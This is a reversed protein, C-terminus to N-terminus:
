AESTCGKFQDDPADPEPKVITDEAEEKKVGWSGAEGGEDDVSHAQRIISWFFVLKICRRPATGSRHFVSTPFMHAAGPTAM